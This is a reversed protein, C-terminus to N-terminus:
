KQYEEDRLMNFRNKLYVAFDFTKEGIKLLVNDLTWELSTTIVKWSWSGLTKATKKIAGFARNKIKTILRIKEADVGLKVKSDKDKKKTVKGTFVKSVISDVLQYTTEDDERDLEFLYSPDERHHTFVKTEGKEGLSKQFEYGSLKALKDLQISEINERLLKQLGKGFKTPNYSVTIRYTGKGKTFTGTIEGKPAFFKNEWKISVPEVM